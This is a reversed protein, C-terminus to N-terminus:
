ARVEQPYLAAAFADEAARLHSAAIETLLEEPANVGAEASLQAVVATQKELRERREMIAAHVQIAVMADVEVFIMTM